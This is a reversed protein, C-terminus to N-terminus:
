FLCCYLSVSRRRYFRLRRSNARAPSKIVDKQKYEGKAKPYCGPMNASLFLSFSLSLSLFLSIILFSVYLSVSLNLAALSLM